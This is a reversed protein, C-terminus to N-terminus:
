LFLNILSQAFFHLLFRNWFVLCVDSESTLTLKTFTWDFICSTIGNISVNFWTVTDASRTVQVSSLQCTAFFNVWMRRQGFVHEQHGNGSESQGSEAQFCWRQESRGCRVAKQWRCPHWREADFLGIYCCLLMLVWQLFFLFVVSAAIMFLCCNIIWFTNGTGSGRSSGQM